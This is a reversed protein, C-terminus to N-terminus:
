YSCRQARRETRRGWPPLLVAPGNSTNDARDDFPKARFLARGPSIPVCQKKGLLAGPIISTSTFVGPLTPDASCKPRRHNRFQLALRPATRFLTQRLFTDTEYRSTVLSHALGRMQRGDRGPANSIVSQSRLLEREAADLQFMFDEPSGCAVGKWRATERNVESGRERMMEGADRDLLLPLKM